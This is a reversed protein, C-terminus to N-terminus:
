TGTLQNNEALLRDLEALACEVIRDDSMAIGTARAADYLDPGLQARAQDLAAQRDARV